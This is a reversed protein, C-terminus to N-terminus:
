PIRNLSATRSQWVRGPASMTLNDDDACASLGTNVPMLPLHKPLVAPEGPTSSAGGERLMVTSPLQRSSLAHAPRSMSIARCASGRTASAARRFQAADGRHHVHAGACQLEGRCATSHRALCAAPDGSCAASGGARTAGAPAGCRSPTATAGSSRRSDGDGLRRAYQVPKFKPKRKLGAKLMAAPSRLRRSRGDHNGHCAYKEPRTRETERRAKAGSSHCAVSQFGSRWQVPCIIRM